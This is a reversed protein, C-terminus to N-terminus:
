TEYYYYYIISVNIIKITVRNVTADLGDRLAFATTHTWHYFKVHEVTRVHIRIVNITRQSTPTSLFYYSLSIKHKGQNRGSKDLKLTSLVNYVNRAKSTSAQFYEGVFSPRLCQLWRGSPYQNGVTMYKSTMECAWHYYVIASLENVHVFPWLM